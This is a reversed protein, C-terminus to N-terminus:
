HNHNYRFTHNYTHAEWSSSKDTYQLYFWKFKAIINQPELIEMQNKKTDEVGNSFNEIKRDTELINMSAQLQIKIIAAKFDKGYWKLMQM